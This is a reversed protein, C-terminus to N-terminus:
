KRTPGLTPKCTADLTYKLRFVNNSEITEVVEHNPPAGDDDLWLSLMGSGPHLYIQTSITKQEDAALSLGTQHSVVTYPVSPPMGTKLHNGFTHPTPHMGHNAMRYEVNFACQGNSQM